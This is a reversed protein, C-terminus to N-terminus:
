DEFERMDNISDYKVPDQDDIQIYGYTTDDDNLGFGITAKNKSSMITKGAYPTYMIWGYPIMDMIDFRMFESSEQHERLQNSSLWNATTNLSVSGGLLSTGIVGNVSFSNNNDEVNNDDDILLHYIGTSVTVHNNQYTDFFENDEDNKEDFFVSIYGNGDSKTYGTADGKTVNEDDTNNTIHQYGSYQVKASNKQSYCLAKLIYGTTTNDDTDTRTQSEKLNMNLNIDGIAKIDKTTTNTDGEDDEEVKKSNFTYNFKGSMDLTGESLFVFDGVKFSLNNNKISTSFVMGDLSDSTIITSNDDDTNKDYIYKHSNSFDIILKSKGNFVNIDDEEDESHIRLNNGFGNQYYVLEALKDEQTDDSTKCNDFEVIADFHGKFVYIGDEQGDSHSENYHFSYTGGDECEINDGVEIKSYGLPTEDLSKISDIINLTKIAVQKQVGNKLQVESSDKVKGGVRLSYLIHQMMKASGVTDIYSLNLFGKTKNQDLVVNQAKVSEPIPCTTTNDEVPPPTSSGGGCGVLTMSVGAICVMSAVKSLYKM